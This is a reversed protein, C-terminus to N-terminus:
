SWTVGCLFCGSRPIWVLCALTFVTFVCIKSCYITIDLFRYFIPIYNCTCRFVLWAWWNIKLKKRKCEKNMGHPLSLQSDTLKKSCTLYVSDYRIPFQVSAKSQYSRSHDQVVADCWRVSDNELARQLFSYLCVWVRDAASHYDCTQLNWRDHVFECPLGCIERYVEVNLLQFIARSLYLPLSIYTTYSRDFPTM